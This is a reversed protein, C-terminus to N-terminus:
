QETAERMEGARKGTIFVPVGEHKSPAPINEAIDILLRLAPPRRIRYRIVRACWTSNRWDWSDGGDSGAVGEAEIVGGWIGLAVVRVRAGPCPCGKGDHEIWPGFEGSM